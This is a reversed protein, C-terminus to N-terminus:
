KRSDYSVLTMIRTNPCMDVLDDKQLKKIAKYILTGSYDEFLSYFLHSKVPMAHAELTVLVEVIIGCLYNITESQKKKKM